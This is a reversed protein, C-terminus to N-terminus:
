HNVLTMDTLITRGSSDLANNLVDEYQWFPVALGSSEDKVHCGLILLERPRKQKIDDIMAMFGKLSSGFPKGERYFLATELDNPREFPTAWHYVVVDFIGVNSNAAPYTYLAVGNSICLSLLYELPERPLSKSTELGRREILVLDGHKLALNRLISKLRPDDTQITGMANIKLSVKTGTDDFSIRIVKPSTENNSGDFIFGSGQNKMQCGLACLLVLVFHAFISINLFRFRFRTLESYQCLNVKESPLAPQNRLDM